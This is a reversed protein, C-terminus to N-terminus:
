WICQKIFFSVVFFFRIRKNGADIQNHGFRFILRLWGLYSSKRWGFSCQCTTLRVLEIFGRRLGFDDNKCVGHFCKSENRISSAFFVWQFSFQIKQYSIRTMHKPERELVVWGENEGFLVSVIIIWFKCEYNPVYLNHDFIITEGRFM